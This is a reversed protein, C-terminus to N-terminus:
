PGVYPPLLQGVAKADTPGMLQDPGTGRTRTTGYQWVIRGSRPDIVVVRDNADDSVLYNGNSLRQVSSPHSLMGPGGAPGYSWVVRGRRDFVLIRGPTHYDAAVYRGGGLPMTDSLYHVAAPSAEWAIRGDPTVELARPTGFDPGAESILVDGGRLPVADNITYLYGPAVGAMGTHGHQWIIRKTAKDVKIVRQNGPDSILVAGPLGFSDEPISLSGPGSGPRDRRGYVWGIKGTRQDVEYVQDHADSNVILTGEPTPAIDDPQPARATWLIQKAVNVEIIRNGKEDSVFVDQGGLPGAKTSPTPSATPAPAGPSRAPAERTSGHTQGGGGRVAAIAYLVGGLAALTVM